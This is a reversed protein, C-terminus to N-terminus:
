RPGSYPRAAILSPVGMKPRDAFIALAEEFDIEHDARNAEAKKADWEFALSMRHLHYRSPAAALRRRAQDRMAIAISQPRSLRLQCRPPEGKLVGARRCCAM